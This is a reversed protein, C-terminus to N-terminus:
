GTRTTGTIQSLEVKVASVSVTHGSPNSGTTAPTIKSYATRTPSSTPWVRRPPPCPVYGLGVPVSPDVGAMQRQTGRTVQLRLLVSRVSPSMSLDRRSHRTKPTSTGLETMWGGDVTPLYDQNLTQNISLHGEAWDIDQLRLGLIEGRRMGLMLGITVFAAVGTDPHDKCVSLLQRAQEETFPELM